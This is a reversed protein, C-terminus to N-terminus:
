REELIDRKPSYNLRWGFELLPRTALAFNTVVTVLRPSQYDGPQLKQWVEYSTLKLFEAIESKAHNDFGRPLRTLRAEGSFELDNKALSKVLRLFLKPDALMANRWAQLFPREPMWFGAAIFAEDPSIHIYIGGKGKVGHMTAGVHTKLPRKDASFRIDRYVRMVPNKDNAVVKLGHQRCISSTEAILTAMPQEVHEQYLHKRTRFWERDNHKKLARLFRIGEEPFGQFVPASESPNLAEKVSRSVSTM